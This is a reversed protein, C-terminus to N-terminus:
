TPHTAPCRSSSWGPGSAGCGLLWPWAATAALGDWVLTAKQGGLFRRRQDLAQILTDTNDAGPQHPFALSGGGGSGYCLAAAMSARKCNYRHRITPVQGRPAWTRGLVPGLSAGSEDWFVIVARRRRANRCIRLGTRPWGAPLRRSTANSPAAPPDNGGGAMRRLLKWTHGPHDAVGTLRQIV